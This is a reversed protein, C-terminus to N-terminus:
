SKLVKGLMEDLPTLEALGLQALAEAPDVSDDHDLVGLMAQTMPPNAMLTQMLGAMAMGLARPLSIVRGSTGLVTAARATLARRSLTEPGGLDIVGDLAQSGAAVIAAVVDGAYIPQEISAARFTFSLSARARKALAFSAYDGEGLVMPVRLVCGALPGQVILQEAAGKSALCANKADPASGVISLYTLHKVPTGELSKLLATTSAEHAANYSAQRTEKLIGVLHVARDCNAAVANLAAVDEYDLIEVHLRAKATEAIELQHISDAARQSRVVAVVETHTSGEADQVHLLSAILRKGLNGNAGTIM